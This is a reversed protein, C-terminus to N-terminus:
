PRGAGSLRVTAPGLPMVLEDDVGVVVAEDDVVAVRLTWPLVQDSPLGPRGRVALGPWQVLWEGPAMRASPCSPACAAYSVMRPASQLQARGRAAAAFIAEAHTLWAERSMGPAPADMGGLTPAFLSRLRAPDRQDLAERYRAVLAEVAPRHDGVVAVTVGDVSRTAPALDDGRAAATTPLPTTACGALALLAASVQSPLFAKLAPRGM